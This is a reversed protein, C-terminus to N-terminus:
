SSKMRIANAVAVCAFSIDYKHKLANINVFAKAKEVKLRLRWKQRFRLEDRM